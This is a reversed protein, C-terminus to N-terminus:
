EHAILYYNKKGRRVVTFQGGIAKEKAVVYELDKVVNGNVSVAGNTIFERAERKSVAAKTM